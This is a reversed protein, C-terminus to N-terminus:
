RGGRGGRGGMGGRRPGAQELKQRAQARQDPTLVQAIRSVVDVRAALAEPQAAAITAKLEDIRGTDPPDSLLALQLQRQLSAVEHGPRNDSGRQASIISRIQERQETTLDLGRLLAVVGPGGPRGPGGPGMRGGGGAGRGQPPQALVPIAIAAAVVLAGAISLFTRKM